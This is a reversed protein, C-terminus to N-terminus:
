EGGEIQTAKEQQDIWIKVMGRSIEICGQDDYGPDYLGLERVFEQVADSKLKCLEADTWRRVELGAVRALLDDREESVEQWAEYINAGSEILSHVQQSLEANAEALAEIEKEAAQHNDKHPQSTKRRQDIENLLATIQQMRVAPWGEPLHDTELTRMHEILEDIATM